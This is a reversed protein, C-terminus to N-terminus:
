RTNNEKETEERFERLKESEKEWWMMEMKLIDIGGGGLAREDRALVREEVKM